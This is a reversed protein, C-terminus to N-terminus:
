KDIAHISDIIKKATAEWTFLHAHDIQMQRLREDNPALLCEAIASSIDKIDLPDFYHAFTGAVEPLSTANSACVKTGCALAELIPLGFGEYLSPYAFLKAGSYLAPMDARDVYGLLIIDDQYLSDYKRRIIHDAKWGEKGSIILQIDRHPHNHRFLEYGKILNLLNKRPELTGQYLIYDKYLGYKGLINSDEIPLFIDSVGLLAPVVKPTDVGIYKTIDSKTYHSNTIILDARRLIGRLTLSQMWGSILPHWERHTVATMDHIVTVRKISEPLNFPGFHAPEIVVDLKYEQALRPIEILLRRLRALYSGGRSVKIIEVGEFSYRESGSFLFYSSDSDVKPLARVINKTYYHIGAYQLDISDGIIGIRM